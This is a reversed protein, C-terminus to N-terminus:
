RSSAVTLDRFKAAATRMEELDHFGRMSQNESFHHRAALRVRDFVFRVARERGHGLNPFEDAVSDTVRERLGQEFGDPLVPQETPQPMATERPTTVDPCERGRQPLEDITKGNIL